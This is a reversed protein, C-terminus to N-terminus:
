RPKRFFTQPLEDLYNLFNPYPHHNVKSSLPTRGLNASQLHRIAIVSLAISPIDGSDLRVPNLRSVVVVACWGPFTTTTTTVRRGVVLRGATRPHTDAIESLCSAYASDIDCSGRVTANGELWNGGEGYLIVMGDSARKVIVQM